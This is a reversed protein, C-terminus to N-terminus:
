TSMICYAVYLYHLVIRMQYSLLKKKQSAIPIPIAPYYM